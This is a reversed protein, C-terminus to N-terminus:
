CCELMCHADDAVYCVDFSQDLVTTRFHLYAYGKLYPFTNWPTCSKKWISFACEDTPLILGSTNQSM